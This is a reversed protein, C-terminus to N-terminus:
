PVGQEAGALLATLAEDCSLWGHASRYACLADVTEHRVRLWGTGPYHLAIMERWVAVPLDYRDERDWPIQTVALGRAGARFVTGSFLFQTPITGDRLAHLYKASAVEVDYTCELPLDVTTTATFGPVVTAAHQWLFTHQTASWRERPGFLDRLADAEADTYTRRLPDIRVQARVALAHVPDDGAGGIEIRATLVPTVSYQEAVVDRVRFTLDGTM